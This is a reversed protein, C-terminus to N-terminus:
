TCIYSTENLCCDNVEYMRTPYTNVSCLSGRQKQEGKKRM